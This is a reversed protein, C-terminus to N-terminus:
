AADPGADEEHEGLWATEGGMMMQWAVQAEKHAAVLFEPHWQIVPGSVGCSCRVQQAAVHAPSCQPKSGCWSCPSLRTDSM